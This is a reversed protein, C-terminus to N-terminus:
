VSIRHLIGREINNENSNKFKIKCFYYAIKLQTLVKFRHGGCAVLLLVYLTRATEFQVTWWM